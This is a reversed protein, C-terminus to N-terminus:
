QWITHPLILTGERPIVTILPRRHYKQEIESLLKNFKSARKTAFIKDEIVLVMYGRFKNWNKSLTRQEQSMPENKQKKM